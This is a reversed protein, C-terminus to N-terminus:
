KKELTELYEELLKIKEKKRNKREMKDIFYGIFIGLVIVGIAYLIIQVWDIM